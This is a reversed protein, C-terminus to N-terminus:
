KIVIYIRIYMYKNFLSHIIAPNHLNLSSKQYVSQYQKLIIFFIKKVDFLFITEM